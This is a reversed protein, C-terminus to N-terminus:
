YHSQGYVTHPIWMSWINKLILGSQLVANVGGSVAQNEM